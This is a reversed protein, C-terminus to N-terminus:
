RRWRRRGALTNEAIRDQVVKCLTEETLSSHKLLEDFQERTLTVLEVAGESSARISAITKGGHLLEVEGFFQGPGLRAVTVEGARRARLVVEVIGKSIMFFRNHREGQRIILAGPQYFEMELLKTAELMLGHPLSPLAAALTENVIEGDSIVLNRGTLKTISPDHTVILITKGRRAMEGFMDLIVGASRSDLNGTPEDAIIIPPDTALARAIAASQQQGTSVLAPLKDAQDQLGVIELLDLARKKRESGAYINCYDMPLIVNELLSLMPMLQFFQFVIGLNVGRWFSMQSETMRHIDQGSVFVKGSSPHDIGTIMNMMTSKGSGSKGVISVFEGKNFVLDIGKLATFEGAGSKFKKRVGKLEILVSSNEM